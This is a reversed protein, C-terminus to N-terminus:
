RNGTDKTGVYLRDVSPKPIFIVGIASILACVALLEFAFPLHSYDTLAVIAGTIPPGVTGGATTGFGWVLANGFSSSGSAAYDTTLSLFLPFASFTFFGFLTLLVIGIDGAVALYGLISLASGATSLGLVFRKDFRGVLYGFVPQGVVASGYMVTLTAGLASSVGLGKVQTLYLPMWYSIGQLTAARAFALITVVVIGKTLADRLASSGTGNDGSFGSSQGRLGFWTLVSASLGVIAFIAISEFQTFTAAALFFLSPYLARGISGAAGNVGLARGQWSGKFGSQLVAGGLPHYFASGSGVVSASVITGAVLTLGSSYTASAAIGLLGISLLALGVGVLPGPRNSRDALRGVFVSLFSSTAYYAVFM